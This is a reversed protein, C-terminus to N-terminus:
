DSGRVINEVANSIFLNLSEGRKDAETRWREKTGKKVRIIITDYAKKNYRDKVASSTKGM